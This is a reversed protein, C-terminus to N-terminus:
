GSACGARLRPLQRQGPLAYRDLGQVHGFDKLFRERCWRCGCTRWGGYHIMDDSMLGDIGTDRVLKRVYTQYAHRFYPNNMCFQEANYTPLYVAQGTEVDIMRMENLLHGEFTWTAATEMSPYFPVHHRNRRRIEWDDERTRTRHTLVSSHHDFLAIHRSHLEAVTFAMLDHLRDWLPMHDWRLHMGFIMACNVGSEAAQDARRRIKDVIAQDPWMMDNWDLWWSIARYRGNIEIGM